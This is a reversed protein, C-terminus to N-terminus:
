HLSKKLSDLEREIELPLFVGSAESYFFAVYELTEDLHEMAFKYSIKYAESKKQIHPEAERFM